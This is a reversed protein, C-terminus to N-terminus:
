WDDSRDKKQETISDVIKKGITAGVGLITFDQGISKLNKCEICYGKPKKTTHRGCLAAGCNFCNHIAKSKCNTKSCNQDSLSFRMTSDNSFLNILLVM